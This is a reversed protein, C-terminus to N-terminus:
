LAVLLQQQSKILSGRLLHYVFPTRSASWLFAGPIKALPHFYVNYVIQFIPYLILLVLITAVPLRLSFNSEVAEAINLLAM